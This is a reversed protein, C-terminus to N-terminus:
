VLCTAILPMSTPNAHILGDTDTVALWALRVTAHLHAKMTTCSSEDHASSIGVAPTQMRADAEGGCAAIATLRGCFDGCHKPLVLPLM